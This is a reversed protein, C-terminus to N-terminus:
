QDTITEAGMGYSNAKRRNMILWLQNELYLEKFFKSSFKRGRVLAVGGGGGADAAELREGESQSSRHVPGTYCVSSKEAEGAIEKPYCVL